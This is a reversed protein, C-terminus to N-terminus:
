GMASARRAFEMAALEIENLEHSSHLAVVDFHEDARYNIKLLYAAMKAAAGASFGDDFHSFFGTNTFWLFRDYGYETLAAFAGEFSAGTQQLLKPHWEFIVAPACRVLLQRAGRIVEGDSGDVDIKLVDINASSIADVRDLEIAAALEEGSAAASGPHHQVLRPIEREASALLQQVITVNNFQAMNARLLEFFEAAGEVCIFRAVADPCRQKLLLVTDGIAAGIDGVVIPQGRVRYMQHVLEVLPANFYPFAAVISPYSDGQNLVVDFGHVRAPTPAMM